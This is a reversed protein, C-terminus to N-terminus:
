IMFNKGRIQVGTNIFKLHTSTSAKGEPVIMNICRSEKLKYGYHRFM